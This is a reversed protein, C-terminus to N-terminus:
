AANDSAEADAIIAARFRARAVDARASAAIHEVKAALYADQDYKVYFWADMHTKLAALEAREAEILAKKADDITM